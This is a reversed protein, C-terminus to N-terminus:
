LIKQLFFPSFFNRQASLHLPCFRKFIKLSSTSSFVELSSKDYYNDVQSPSLNKLFDNEM